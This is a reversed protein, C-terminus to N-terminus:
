ISTVTGRLRSPPEGASTCPDSGACSHLLRHSSPPPRRSRRTAACLHAVHGLCEHTLAHSARRHAPDRLPEVLAHLRQPTCGDLPGVGVQVERRQLPDAHGGPGALPLARIPAVLAEACSSRSCSRVASIRMGSPGSSDSFLQDSSRSCSRSRPRLPTWSTIASSCAPRAAATRRKRGSTRRWRQVTWRPCVTLTSALTSWDLDVQIRYIRTARSTTSPRATKRTGGPELQTRSASDPRLYVKPASLLLLLYADEGLPLKM